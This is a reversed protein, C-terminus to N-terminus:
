REDELAKRACSRYTDIIRKYAFEDYVCEEPYGDDTRREYDEPPFDRIWRLADELEKIRMKAAEARKQWTSKRKKRPKGSLEMMEDVYGM